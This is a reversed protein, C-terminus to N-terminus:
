FQARLAEIIQQVNWATFRGDASGAYVTEGDANLLGNQVLRGNNETYAASFGDIRRKLSGAKADFALLDSGYPLLLLDDIRVFDGAQLLNQQGARAFEATQTKWRLQGDEASLAAPIGNLLVYLVDEDMLPHSARGPVSWVERAAQVDYLISEFLSGDAYVPSDIARRILLYRSGLMDVEENSRIARRGLIEGTATDLRIWDSGLTVWRAGSSPAFPGSREGAPFVSDLYPNPLTDVESKLSWVARGTLPDLAQIWRGQQILVYPDNSGENLVVYPDAFEKTWLLNGSRQSRVTLIGKEAADPQLAVIAATGAAFIRIGPSDAADGAERSWRVAGDSLRISRLMPRNAQDSDAGTFVLVSRGDEGPLADLRGGGAGREWLKRGSSRDLAYIGSQPHGGSVDDSRVLLVNDSADLLYQADLAAQSQWVPEPSVSPVVPLTRFEYKFTYPPQESHIGTQPSESTALIWNWELLAGGPSFSITLHAGSREYRWLEGRAEANAADTTGRHPLPSRSYPEGLLELVRKKSVGSTLSTETLSRVSDTSLSSNAAFLGGEPPVASQVETSAVWLLAPRVVTGHAYGPDSPLSIGYWDGWRLASLAGSEAYEAPWSLESEPFLHLKADPKLRITLPEANQASAAAADTYWVPIHVKEGLPTIAEYLEGSRGTVNLDSGPNEYYSVGLSSRSNESPRMKFYPASLRLQVNGNEAASQGAAFVPHAPLAAATLLLLPLCLVLGARLTPTRLSCIRQRNQRIAAPKQYPPYLPFRKM